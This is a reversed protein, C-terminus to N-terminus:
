GRKGENSQGRRRPKEGVPEILQPHGDREPNNKSHQQNSQPYERQDGPQTITHNEGGPPHNNITTKKHAAALINKEAANM